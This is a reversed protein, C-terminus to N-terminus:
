KDRDRQDIQEVQVSNQPAAEAKRKQSAELKKCLDPKRVCLERVGEDINNHLREFFGAHAPSAISVCVLIRFLTKMSDCYKQRSVM